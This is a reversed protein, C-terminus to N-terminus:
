GRAGQDAVQEGLLLSALVAPTARELDEPVRQGTGLYSIALNRERLATFIPTIGDAEDLRTLVVRDPPADGFGNLLRDLGAITTAAPIVLHTRVGDRGAVLRFITRAEPDRPSRGATDVLLPLTRPETLVREIEAPTRAVTFTSGIIDAYLRLQDIAGVRYGDAAVLGLRKGRLAREQAAIKAITTTKGAGPPGIFVEVTALPEEGAAVAGVCQALARRITPVSAGRRGQRPVAGAVQRAFEVDFGSARLRAVIENEPQPVSQRNDQREPRNKSVPPRDAAATVEVERRGLWGAPGRSAVMRTSLVLADPGLEERVRALAQQVTPMRYRKLHM